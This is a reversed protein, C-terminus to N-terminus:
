CPWIMLPLISNTNGNSKSKHINLESASCLLLLSRPLTQVAVRVFCAVSDSSKSSDISSTATVWIWTWNNFIWWTLLLHGSSTPHLELNCTNSYSKTIKRSYNNKRLLVAPTPDINTEKRHHHLLNQTKMNAFDLRRVWVPWCRPWIKM